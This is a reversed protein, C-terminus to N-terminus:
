RSIETCVQVGNLNTRAISGLSLQPIDNGFALMIVLRSGHKQDVSQYTPVKAGRNLALMGLGLCTHVEVRTSRGSISHDHERTTPSSVSTLNAGQRYLLVLRQLHRQLWNGITRMRQHHRVM